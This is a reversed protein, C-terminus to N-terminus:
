NTKLSSIFREVEFRNNLIHVNKMAQLKKLFKLIIPQRTRPYNWIYKLFEIDIHEPCGELLDPRNRGYNRFIREFARLYSLRRPAKIFIVTDAAKSRMALTSTYNGDMVWSDGSILEGVKQYWEDRPTEIWGTNWYYMDLHIIPIQLIKGIKEALTTKGSGSPGLVIIRKM